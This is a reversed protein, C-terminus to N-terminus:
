EIKRPSPTQDEDVAAGGSSDSKAAAEATLRKIEHEKEWADRTLRYWLFVAFGAFVVWEIAYFLNLWSVSEPPLPPVSDIAALWVTDLDAPGFLQASEAPHLVLYGAYVPGDVAHWQNALQAPAMSLLTTAAQDPKPLEIGDPPMYRGFLETAPRPDASAGNLREAAEEAAEATPAWGLAVALNATGADAASAPGVVALHGVVWAGSEGQNTRGEVVLFDGPVLSGELSVVLGGVDEAVPRWPGTLSSLERPVESTYEQGANDRFAHDMQWRGLWAFAAAVILALILALIWQPRRM